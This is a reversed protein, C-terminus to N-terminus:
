RVSTHDHFLEMIAQIRTVGSVQKTESGERAFVQDDLSSLSKQSPIWICVVSLGRYDVCDIASLVSTRLPESLGSNSVSRVIRMKYDDISTDLNNAERDIGVVFREGVRLPKVGDLDQIRKAHEAKDAVGLFVAGESEPGLNAIGCITANLKDLIETDQARENDLRLLGQKCEFANTEIKSRRLANEFRIGLGAGSLIAPPKKELFRAQILGKCTDINRRRKESTTQGRSTELRRHVNTLSNMIESASSPSKQEMVCLEYFAMFVAYFPTKVPNGGAEPNVTRRFTNPRDDFAEVVERLISFTSILSNKLADVGYVSLKQQIERSADTDPDYVENLREGSFPFPTGDLISVAIDALMQEDESDRLQQKRLIGQKCWFTEDASVGYDPQEGEVEISISPMQALDLSETSVDGRLEAAIDRILQPFPSVNGAQRKEQDSLQRGYANIRRFVEHVATENVAPFETVAFNYDIFDACQQPSLLHNPDTEVQFGADQSAQQARALQAVDFFKEELSFRNEIFSFVANLRQMGDIIEYTRSGDPNQRTALLILPIPYGHLISDILRRKEELTWVLKRQYRRNVRFNGARYEQYATQISKGKPSVSM